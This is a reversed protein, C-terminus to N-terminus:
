ISLLLRIPIVHGRDLVHGRGVQGSHEFRLLYRFDAFSLVDSACTIARENTFRALFVYFDLLLVDLVWMRKRSEAVGVAWVERPALYKRWEKSSCVIARKACIRLQTNHDLQCPEKGRSTSEGVGSERRFVQLDKENTSRRMSMM